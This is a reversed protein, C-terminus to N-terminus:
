LRPTDEVRLGVQRLRSRPSEVRWRGLPAPTGKVALLDVLETLQPERASVPVLRRREIQYASYGFGELTAKLTRPSEGLLDLTHANSEVLIPPADPRRLLGAMGILAAVESGEVDIKVFDVSDWGLEELLEDVTISPVVVTGGRDPGAVVRGFPGAPLFDVDGRRDAVAASVVQLNEFRNARRSAELLEVNRPAPEIAAVLRRSATAALAFSGLHAGLDLVRGGVPALADMLEYAARCIPPYVGLALERAIPDRPVAETAVEFRVGRQVRVRRFAADRPPRGPRHDAFEM